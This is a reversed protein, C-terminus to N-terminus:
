YLLPPYWTIGFKAYLNGVTAWSHRVLSAPLGNAVNINRELWAKTVPDSPYGTGVDADGARVLHPNRHPWMALEYDRTVKALLSAASVVPYLADAKSKVTFQILPFRQSLRAQYKEPPGVTDVYM